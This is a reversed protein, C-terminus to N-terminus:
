SGPPSKLIGAGPFPSPREPLPTAPAAELPLPRPQPALIWRASSSKVHPPLCLYYLTKLLFIHRFATDVYVSPVFALAKPVLGLFM